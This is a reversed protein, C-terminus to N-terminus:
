DLKLQMQGANDKSIVKKWFDKGLKHKTAYLFRYLPASRSNRIRVTDPSESTYIFGISKLKQIYHQLLQERIQFMDKRRPDNDYITKWYNDGFFLDLKNGEDSNSFVELLRMIGSDCYNIVLDIRSLESLKCITTWPLEEIGEPDLFVLTLVSSPYGSLGRINRVLEDVYTNSDGHNVTISRGEYRYQLCRSCLASYYETNIESFYYDTFKMEPDLSILASGLMVKKGDKYKGPGSFLDIYVLHKYKNKMSVSIMNQIRDLIYLKNETWQQLTRTALQDDTTEFKSSM